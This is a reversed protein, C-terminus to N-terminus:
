IGKVWDSYKTEEPVKTPSEFLLSYGDPDKIGVVWLNNGVFPEDATLGRQTIEGYIKLADDCMFVVSLGAGLKEGPPNRYEQLMLSANDIQLWCWEIKGEPEWKLKLEFGLGAVYFNLSRDMNTVMFFPVAQQVNANNGTNRKM